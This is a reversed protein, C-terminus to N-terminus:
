NGSPVSEFDEEIQPILDKIDQTLFVQFENMKEFAARAESLRGAARLDYAYSLWIRPHRQEIRLQRERFPIAQVQQGRQERYAASLDLLNFDKPYRALALELTFFLENDSQINNLERALFWYETELVSPLLSIKRIETARASVEGSNQPNVPNALFKQISRDPFSAYWSTAFLAGSVVLAIYNKVDVGTYSKSVKPSSDLIDRGERTRLGLVLGLFAYNWVAISINDISFVSMSWLALFIASIGKDINSPSNSLITKFSVFVGILVPVLISILGLIGLTAFAQIFVNHANNTTLDITTREALAQSRYTRFFDGYSDPGVGWFPSSRGIEIGTLWYQFRLQVTYQGIFRGLPGFGLAGLFVFFGLAGSCSLLLLKQPLSKLNIRIFLVLLSVILLAGFGQISQTAAILGVSIGFFTFRMLILAVNSREFVVLILFCSASLAFMASAFNTNGFFSFVQNSQSWNVPDAGLWQILGYTCFAISSLELSHLFKFTFSRSSNLLSFSMAVVFLSILTLLGNNRGWLGWLTRSWSLNEFIKSLFTSIIILVCSIILLLVQQHKISLKKSQSYVRYSSLAIFPLITILAIQKPWNIPDLFGMVVVCSILSLLITSGDLTYRNSLKM